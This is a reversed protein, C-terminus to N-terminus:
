PEFILWREDLAIEPNRIKVLDEESMGASRLDSSAYHPFFTAL